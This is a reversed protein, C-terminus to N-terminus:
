RHSGGRLSDVLRDLGEAFRHQPPRSYGIVLGPVGHPDLWHRRLGMLGVSSRAAGAVIDAEDFPTEDFPAGAQPTVTVHLGASVSGVPQLWGVNVSLADILARRRRRYLVRASRIQRDLEGREIFDALALQELTSVGARMHKVEGLPGRLERPVALWSMRLGPALTKSATGAYLVRDPALGQLAGVPQRDYRFEGDYDDEVIWANNLRAWEILEVRRAPAMTIGLPYQNAPTVLVARVKAEMLQDVRIGGDDIAIGVPEIGCLRFVDVVAFLSPDEVAIRPIGLRLLTEAIFGVANFFGGFISIARPSASVARSRGLYAALASRLEERGRPDDYDFVSDESLALVNRVSRMWATRPFLSVDPSGPRFDFDLRPQDIRASAETPAQTEDPQRFQAVRTGSGQRPVLYGEIALQEYAAVVTARAVQLDAALSRSSPLKTGPTLFGDAIASRLAQELASRRGVNPDLDLDLLLDRVFEVTAHRTARAHFTTQIIKLQSTWSSLGSEGVRQPHGVLKPEADRKAVQRNNGQLDTDPRQDSGAREVVSEGAEAPHPDRDVPGVVLVEDSVDACEVQCQSHQEDGSGDRQSPREDHGSCDGGHRPPYWMQDVVHEVGVAQRAAIEYGAEAAERDEGGQRYRQDDGATPILHQWGHGLSSHKPGGFSRIQVCGIWTAM